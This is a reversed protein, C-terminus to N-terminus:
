SLDWGPSKWNVMWCLCRFVDSEMQVEQQFGKWPDRDEPCLKGM